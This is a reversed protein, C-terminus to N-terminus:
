RIGRLVVAKSGKATALDGRWWKRSREWDLWQLFVNSGQAFTEATTVWFNLKIGLVLQNVITRDVGYNLLEQAFIKSGIEMVKSLNQEDIWRQNNFARQSDRLTLFAGDQVLSGVREKQLETFLSLLLKERFKFENGSFIKPFVSDALVGIVFTAQNYRMAAEGNKTFIIRGGRPIAINRIETKQSRGVANTPDGLAYGETALKYLRSAAEFPFAVISTAPNRIGQIGRVEILNNQADYVEVVGDAYGTNFVDLSYVLTGNSLRLANPRDLIFGYGQVLQRPSDGPPVKIGSISRSDAAVVLSRKTTTQQRTSRSRVTASQNSTQQRIPQSRRTAIQFNSPLDLRRKLKATEPTPHFSQGNFLFTLQHFSPKPLRPECRSDNPRTTGKAERAESVKIVLDPRGDKNADQLAFDAIEAEKFPPQCSATNCFVSILETSTTKTSGIEISNLWTIGNGTGRARYFGECVLAHRGNLTPFKLCNNSRLGREYRM